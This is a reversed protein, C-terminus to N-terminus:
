KNRYKLKIRTGWCRWWIVFGGENSPPKPQGIRSGARSWTRFQGTHGTAM